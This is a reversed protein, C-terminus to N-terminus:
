KSGAAVFARQGLLWRGVKRALEQYGAGSLHPDAPLMSHERHDLQVDLYPLKLRAMMQRFRREAAAPSFTLARGELTLTKGEWRQQMRVDRQKFVYLPVGKQACLDSMAALLAQQLALAHKVRPPLPHRFVAYGSRATELDWLKVKPAFGYLEKFFATMPEGNSTAEAPTPEPMTRDWQPDTPLGPGLARRLLPWLGYRPPAGPPLWLSADPPVLRGQPDLRFTPKPGGAGKCHLNEVADNELTAFLAVADPKLRAFLHRLALYQQDTGWGGAGVSVVEWRHGRGALLRQLQPGPAQSFDQLSVAEVQSDGLLLLRPLKKASAPEPGRFGLTNMPQWKVKWALPGRRPPQGLLRCAVDAALLALVMTLGVLGARKFGPTM